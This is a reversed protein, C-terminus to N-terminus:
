NKQLKEQTMRAVAVITDVAIAVANTGAENEFRSWDYMDSSKVLSKALDVDNKFKQFGAKDGQMGLATALTRDLLSKESAAYFKKVDALDVNVAEKGCAEANVRQENLEVLNSPANDFIACDPNKNSLVNKADPNNFKPNPQALQNASAISFLSLVSFVLKM